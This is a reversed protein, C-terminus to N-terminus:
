ARLHAAERNECEGDACADAGGIVAMLEDVLLKPLLLVKLQGLVDGVFRILYFAYLTKKEKWAFALMFRLTKKTVGKVTKSQESGLAQELTSKKRKKEKKAMKKGEKWM